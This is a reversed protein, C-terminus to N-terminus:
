CNANSGIGFIRGDISVAFCHHHKGTISVIQACSLNHVKYFTSLKKGFEIRSQFLNGNSDVVLIYDDYFAVDVPIDNSPLKHPEVVLDKNKLMIDNLVIINGDTDIVAAAKNGGFLSIPTRGIINVYIHPNNDSAFILQFEEINKESKVLYLTYNNGCVASIFKFPQGYEDKIIIEKEEELIRCYANHGIGFAQYKQNVFVMHSSCASISLLKSLILHSKEPPCIIPYKDTNKNNSEEGLQCYNNCGCVFM